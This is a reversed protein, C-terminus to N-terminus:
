SAFGLHNERSAAYFLCAQNMKETIEPFEEIILENSKGNSLWNLVDGVTIRTGILTPRGFRKNPDIVIYESLKM